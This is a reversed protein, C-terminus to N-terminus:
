GVSVYFLPKAAHQLSDLVSSFLAGPMRALIGEAVVEPPSLPGSRPRAPTPEAGSLFLAGPMRPLIGEAVVEPLSLTGSLARLLAIALLMIAAAGVGAAFGFRRSNYHELSPQQAGLAEITETM